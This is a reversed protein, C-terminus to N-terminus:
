LSDSVVSLSISESEEISFLFWSANHLPCFATKCSVRIGVRARGYSPELIQVVRAKRYSVGIEENTFPSLLM